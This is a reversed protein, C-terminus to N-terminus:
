NAKIMIMVKMKSYSTLVIHDLTLKPLAHLPFEQDSYHLDAIHRWLLYKGDNWMYRSCSGSGSNYLCNRATKILHPSDAFFYIFRSMAFLNPTKYVVDCELDVALKAHLRFFKHNPSAGDNVAACVMLKLSLELTSVVKWFMPMLQFSTVNGTFFYAIVHRLDACMGRVLFALAHSALTDEEQLNAFNTMPDGLDIFGILDGSYKDFVLNSQVKMEDMVIAVYRQLESYNLTKGRLDEINEQNIGAKPKFYNKYDRLVRESPLVM